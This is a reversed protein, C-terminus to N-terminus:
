KKKEQVPADTEFAVSVINSNPVWLPPFKPDMPIVQMGDSVKELKVHDDKTSLSAFGRGGTSVPTVFQVRLIKIAM